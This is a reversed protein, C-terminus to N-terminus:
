TSFLNEADRGVGGSIERAGEPRGGVGGQLHTGHPRAGKEKKGWSSRGQSRKTQFQLSDEKSM